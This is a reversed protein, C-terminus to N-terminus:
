SSFPVDLTFAVCLGDPHPELPEPLLDRLRGPDARFHLLQFGVERYETPLPPYSPRHPPVAYGEDLKLRRPQMAAPREEDDSPLCGCTIRQAASPSSGELDVRTCIPRSCGRARSGRTSCRETGAREKHTWHGTCSWATGSAGSARWSRRRATGMWMPRGSRTGRTWQIMLSPGKGCPAPQRRSAISSWRTGTGRSSRPLTGAAM